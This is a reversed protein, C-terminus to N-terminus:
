STSVPSIKQDFNGAIVLLKKAAQLAVTLDSLCSSSSSSSASEDLLRLDGKFDRIEELLHSLLAM